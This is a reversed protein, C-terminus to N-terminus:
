RAGTKESWHRGAASAAAVQERIRDETKPLTRDVDLYRKDLADVVAADDEAALVAECDIRTIARIHKRASMTNVDIRLGRLGRWM